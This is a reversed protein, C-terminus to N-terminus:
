RFMRKGARKRDLMLEAVSGKSQHAEDIDEDVSDIALLNVVSTGRDGDEIKLSTDEGRDNGQLYTLLSFFGSYNYVTRARKLTLGRGGSTPNGVMVLPGDAAQFSLKNKLKDAKSVKGDYRVASINSKALLGLVDDVDRTFRCWVIFPDRTRSLQDELCDLRPNRKPDIVKAATEVVVAGIRDCAECGSGGCEGCLAYATESPWMNSIIQQLRTSRVLVHQATVETGDRLQAEYEERLRDYVRRQEDSLHFRAASVVQEPMNPFAEKRTMRMSYPELKHQLEELNQYEELVPYEQGTAGNYGKSWRGYRMKFAFFSTFGLVHTGLFSVQAYLDFPGEGIPTGDMIAKAVVGPAFPGKALMRGYAHMAKTRQAGPTKMILTTEDAAIFVRRNKLFRVAYREFGKTITAEGNVALVALGPFVLLDEMAKQFAKTAAKGADWVLVLHPIRDPLHAPLEDTAWNAPVGSPMAVIMLADIRLPDGAPKEYRYAAIDIMPKTKGVRQEFFCAHVPADKFRDFYEAQHAWPKTKPVYTM